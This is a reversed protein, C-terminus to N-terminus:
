WWDGGGRFTTPDKRLPLFLVENYQLHITKIAANNRSRPHTPFDLVQDHGPRVDEVTATKKQKNFRKASYLPKKPVVSLRTVIRSIVKQVPSAAISRACRNPNPSRSRTFLDSVAAPNENLPQKMEPVIQVSTELEVQKEPVAISPVHSLHVETPCEPQAHSDN